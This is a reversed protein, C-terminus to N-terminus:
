VELAAALAGVFADCEIRASEDNLWVRTLTGVLSDVTVHLATALKTLWDHHDIGELAGMEAALVTESRGVAAALHAVNAKAVQRLLVEPALESPLFIYPWRKRELERALQEAKPRMDGDFCGVARVGGLDKPTRNLLEKIDGDSGAVCGVVRDVLPTGGEHMLYHLFSKGVSDEVFVLHRLPQAMGIASRLQSDNPEEIVSVRGGARSALRVAARPVRAIVTASHTTVVARVAKEACREAVLDLVREQSRPSIYTEPEELLLVSGAAVRQLEWHTLFLSMEGLSMTESGYKVGDAEVRFYPFPRDDDYEDLEYALVSTYDRGVIYSIDELDDKDYQKPDHQALLEDLNTENNAWSIITPARQAADILTLAPSQVTGDDVTQVSFDGDVRKDAGQHRM